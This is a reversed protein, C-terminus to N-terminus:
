LRFHDICMVSLDEDESAQILKRSEDVARLLLDKIPEFAKHSHSYVVSYHLGESHPDQCDQLARYRWHSHNMATMMSERSLHLQGSNYIWRGDQQRVLNMNKLTELSQLVTREPLALREALSKSTQLGPIGTAIHVAAWHWSSYYVGEKVGDGLETTQYRRNLNEQDNKIKQLHKKLKAQLRPTGARAYSVLGLLYDSEIENLSLFDAIGLAQELTLHAESNLIRSLYAPQCQAAKAIKGQFGRTAATAILEKIFEKYALYNFISTM